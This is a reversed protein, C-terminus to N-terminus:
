AIHYLQVIPKLYVFAVYCSFCQMIYLTPMSRITKRPNNKSFGFMSRTSILFEYKVSHIAGCEKGLSGRKLGHGDMVGTSCM